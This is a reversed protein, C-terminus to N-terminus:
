LDRVREHGVSALAADVREHDHVLELRPQAAVREDRVVLLPALVPRQQAVDLLLVLVDDLVLDLARDAGVLLGDRLEARVVDDLVAHDAVVPVALDARGVDEVEHGADKGAPVDFVLLGGMSSGPSEGTVTSIFPWAALSSTLSM